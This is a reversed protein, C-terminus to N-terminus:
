LKDRSMPSPETKKSLDSILAHLMGRKVQRCLAHSSTFASKSMREPIKGTRQELSPCKLKGAM